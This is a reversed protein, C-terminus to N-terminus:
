YTKLINKSLIPHKSQIVDLLRTSDGVLLDFATGCEDDDGNLAAEIACCYM